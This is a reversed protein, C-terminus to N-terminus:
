VDGFVKSFTQCLPGIKLNFCFPIDPFSKLVKVSMKFCLFFVTNFTWSDEQDPIFNHTGCPDTRLGNNNQHIDVIRWFAEVFALSKSFSTEGKETTWLIFKDAILKFPSKVLMFARAFWLFIVKLGWGLLCSCSTTKQWLIFFVDCGWSFKLLLKTLCICNWFCKTKQRSPINSKRWCSRFMNLCTFVAILKHYYVAFYSVKPDM